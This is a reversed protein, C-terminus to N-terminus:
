TQLDRNMVCSKRIEFTLVVLMMFWLGEAHCSIGDDKLYHGSIYSAHGSLSSVFNKFMYLM